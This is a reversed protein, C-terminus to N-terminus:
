QQLCGMLMSFISFVLTLIHHLQLRLTYIIYVADPADRSPVFRYGGPPLDSLPNDKPQRTESCAPPAPRTPPYTPLAPRMPPYEIDM